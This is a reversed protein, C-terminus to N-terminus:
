SKQSERSFAACLNTSSISVLSAFGALFITQGYSWNLEPVYSLSFFKVLKPGVMNNAIIGLCDLLLQAFNYFM